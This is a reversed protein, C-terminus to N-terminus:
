HLVVNLRKLGRLTLTQSWSLQEECLEIRHFRALLAPFAIQAELRALHLGLCAHAGAGFDLHANNKRALDLRDPNPFQRADRNACGMMALLSQGAGIPEGHFELDEIAIRSTGQLPGEFRLFEEVASRVMSPDQRLQALAEPHRLLTVMGNGILNRTTEHGAVLLLICQSILEQQSLVDGDEKSALMLSVVDDAPHARKYDLLEGLYESMEITAQRASLALEFPPQFSAIFEIFIDSWHMLRDWDGRPFGLIEGIVLAPFLHALCRMFDIEVGTPLADLLEGFLARIRPMLAALTDPSFARLLLTRVRTHDPPDMFFMQHASVNIWFALAEKQEPTYHAISRVYRKASLRPDRLTDLCDQYHTVAVIHPSLRLVRTGSDLLGRYTRYPDTFFATTGIQPILAPQAESM